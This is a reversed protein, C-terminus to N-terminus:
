GYILILADTPSRPLLFFQSSIPTISQPTISDHPLELVKGNSFRSRDIRIHRSKAQAVKIQSSQQVFSFIPGFSKLAAAPRKHDLCTSVPRSLHLNTSIKPQHNKV